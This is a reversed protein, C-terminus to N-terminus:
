LRSVHLIVFFLTESQNRFESLNELIRMGDPVELPRDNGKDKKHVSNKWAANVCSQACKKRQSNRQM